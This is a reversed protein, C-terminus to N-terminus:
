RVALVEVVAATVVVLVAGHDGQHLADLATAVGTLLVLRDTVTLEPHESIHDQPTQGAVPGGTITGLSLNITEDPEDSTDNTITIAKSATQTGGTLNATAAFTVNGSFATYDTGSTATGGGADNVAITTAVNALM